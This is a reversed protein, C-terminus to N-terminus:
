HRRIHRVAGYGDIAVNVERGCSLSLSPGAITRRGIGIDNFVEVDRPTASRFLSQNGDLVCVHEEDDPVNEDM